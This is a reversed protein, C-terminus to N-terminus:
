GKVAGITLGKLFFKQGCLFVIFVPIVAMCCAAMTLNYQTVEAGVFQDLALPLTWKRWHSIFILPDLYSNWVDLFQVTATAAITPKVLPVMVRWLVAYENAGDIKAAERLEDPAGLFAQRLMFTSSVAILKPVILSAHSNIWGIETFMVFRPILTLQSPVMLQALYFVFLVNSGKFKLKAFAYGAMASSTVAVLTSIVAVKVSNYYALPFHYNTSSNTGINLVKKYNNLYFYNPVWQIPIAMVDKETKFSASLMWFFPILMAIAATVILLTALAQVAMGAATKRKGQRNKAM